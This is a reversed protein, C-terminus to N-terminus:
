NSQAPASWRGALASLSSTGPCFLYIAESSAYWQLAHSVGATNPIGQVHFKAELAQILGQEMGQQASGLILFIPHDSVAIGQAALADMGAQWAQDIDPYVGEIVQNWRRLGWYLVIPIVVVLAAELLMRTWSMTHAQSVRQSGLLRILWVTLLTLLLVIATLLAAKGAVSSPGLRRLFGRKKPAPTENM